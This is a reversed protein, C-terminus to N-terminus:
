IPWSPSVGHAPPGRIGAARHNRWPTPVPSSGCGVRPQGYWFITIPQLAQTLPRFWAVVRWLAAEARNLLAATAATALIHALPMALGPDAHMLPEPAGTLCGGAPAAQHLGGHPSSVCPAEHSLLSLAQHLLVQGIGVVAAIRGMSLRRGLVLMVALFVLAILATSTEMAPLTGGGVVHAGAALLWVTGTVLLPRVLRLLRTSM